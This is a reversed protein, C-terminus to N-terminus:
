RAHEEWRREVLRAVAEQEAAFPHYALARTRDTVGGNVWPDDSCVEHGRSAPWLDLFDVGAQRAAAWLTARLRREVEVVQDRPAGELPLAACSLSPDALRPYGVLLVLAGPAARDKVARLARAVDSRTRTLTAEVDTPSSVDCLAFRQRGGFGCVLQTFLNGDNGGIGVTVLDADRRVARLQPPVTADGGAVRQPATVDGSDAGGCSVDTFARPSLAADVLAPYNASSRFCGGAVDTTPVFPAATYSDGLAVYRQPAPPGTATRSTAATPSAPRSAGQDASSSDCAVVLPVVAVLVGALLARRRSRDARTM